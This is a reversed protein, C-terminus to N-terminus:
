KIGTWGSGPTKVTGFDIIVVGNDPRRLSINRPNIDRHVVGLRHIYKLANPVQGVWRIVRNDKAHKATKYYKDDRRLTWARM